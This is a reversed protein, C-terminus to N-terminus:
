PALRSPVDPAANDTAVTQLDAAAHPLPELAPHFVRLEERRRVWPSNPNACRRLPSPVTAFDAGRPLSSRCPSARDASRWAHPDRLADTRRCPPQPPLASFIAPPHAHM